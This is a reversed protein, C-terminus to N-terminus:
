RRPRVSGPGGAPPNLRLRRPAATEVARAERAAQEPNRHQWYPNDHPLHSHVRGYMGFTMLVLGFVFSFIVNPMGFALHNLGTDLVALNVFGSLVFLVGLAMNLTSAINGGIVMGTFLLAGVVMSLVSLAGNSSLGAIRSGHTSFFGVRDVFGLVGFVVLVLGMLGAGVRYVQSLRHDTPLHEDLKM